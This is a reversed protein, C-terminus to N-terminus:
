KQGDLDEKQKLECYKSFNVVRPDQEQHSIYSRKKKIESDPSTLASSTGFLFHQDEIGLNVSFVVDLLIIFMVKPIMLPAVANTHFNEIMKEATVTYFDAVM